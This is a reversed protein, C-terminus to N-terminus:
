PKVLGNTQEPRVIKIDPKKAATAAKEEKLQIEAIKRQQLDLVKALVKSPRFLTWWALKFRSIKEKGLLVDELAQQRLILRNLAVANRSVVEAMRNYRQIIEGDRM